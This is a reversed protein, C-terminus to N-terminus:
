HTPYTVICVICLWHISPSWVVITVNTSLVTISAVWSLLMGHRLQHMTHRQSYSVGKLGLLELAGAQVYALRKVFYPYFTQDMFDALEKRILDYLDKLRVKM